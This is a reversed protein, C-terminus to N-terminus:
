SSRKNLGIIYIEFSGKRVAEPKMRDIRSFAKLVLQGLEQAGPGEFLKMVMHGGVKLHTQCVKLVMHCLEESLAQDRSRIGSTNPAMDSIVCDFPPGLEELPIQLIDGQIAYLNPRKQIELPKLDIAVVEGKPGVIDLAVQTWSGPAAGLDLVRSGSQILRHRKLMGQLKYASRAVFGEAKAKHFFHDKPKYGV